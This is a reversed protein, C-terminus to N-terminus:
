RRRSRLRASETTSFEDSSSIAGRGPIRDVSDYESAPVRVSLRGERPKPVSETTDPANERAHNEAMTGAVKAPPPTGRRKIAGNQSAPPKTAFFAATSGKM